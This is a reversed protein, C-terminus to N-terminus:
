QPDRVPPTPLKPIRLETLDCHHIDGYAQVDQLQKQYLGDARGEQSQQLKELTKQFKKTLKECRFPYKYFRQQGQDIPYGIRKSIHRLADSLPRHDIAMNRQANERLQADYYNNLIQSQEKRFEYALTQREAAHRRIIRQFEEDSPMEQSEPAPAYCPLQQLIHTPIADTPEPPSGPVEPTSSEPPRSSPIPPSTVTIHDTPKYSIITQCQSLVEQSSQALKSFNIFRIAPPVCTFEELPPPQHEESRKSSGFPLPVDVSPIPPNADPIPDSM